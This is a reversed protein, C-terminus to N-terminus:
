ISRDTLKRLAEWRPDTTTRACNCAEDNLNTGCVPCLGRCDESCLPKMAVSLVLAQRVPEVVDVRLDNGQFCVYDEDDIIGSQRRADANKNRIIFSTPQSVQQDFPKLCRACEIHYSGLVTGQCFYEDGSEQLTLELRVEEVSTVGRGFPEIEGDSACLTTRVPFDEFERLDLIM